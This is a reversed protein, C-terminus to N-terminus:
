KNASGVGLVVPQEDVAKVGQYFSRLAAYYKPDIELANVDLKRTLHLSTKNSEAVFSFAVAHLDHGQPQPVTTIQWGPPIEVTIDDASESLFKFYVPYIRTSYEFAHKEPAGFLGVPFLVRQGAVTAWGLVKLSFEAVLPSESSTWEPQRTLEVEAEAPVYRKLEGELFAKHEVDDENRQDLRCRLAELGTLTVTVKGELSGDTGLKLEAKRSVQSASGKPLSTQIWSGGDRDLQLGSVGTEEWPLLGFPTFASGPNLYLNSGNLKIMVLNQDLRASQMTKPDFFYNSRSAVWVGYADIGAARALALYLWNLQTRDGYSQKWIGDVDEETKRNERKQEEDTKHVEFSTNHLQQVRTYLKRLKVEPSDEPSVIQAMAQQMAARKNIFSELQDNRKRGVKKWFKAADSELPDISYIFDVRAKYENEPPMSEEAQFPPIDSAALQITGDNMEKPSQSGPPLHENWRFSLPVYDNHYPRLTFKANRTFLDNSLVWQSFFIRYEIFTITYYYEIVSGAEVNPLVFTKARYQSGKGKVIMKDFTKGDFNTVSGDPHITRANIDIVSGIERSLPIEVDAYRRGADTLIKIRFYNEEYRDAAGGVITMGGHGSRGQDDRNVERYLIIAPAGPALPEATMKLEEQSVPQFHVSAHADVTLQVLAAFTIFCM